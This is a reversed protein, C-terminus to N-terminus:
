LSKEHNTKKMSSFSCSCLALLLMAKQFYKVQFCLHKRYLYHAWQVSMWIVCKCSSQVSYLVAFLLSPVYNGKSPLNPEKVDRSERVDFGWYHSETIGALFSLRVECGWCTDFWGFCGSAFPNYPEEVLTSVLISIITLLTTPLKTWDWKEACRQLCSADKEFCHNEWPREIAVKNLDIPSLPAFYLLYAPAM